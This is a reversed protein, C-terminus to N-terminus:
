NQKQINGLTPKCKFTNTIPCITM